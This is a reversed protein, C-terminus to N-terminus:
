RGLGIILITGLSFLALVSALGLGLAFPKIGTKRVAETDTGLGIASLAMLVAFKAIEDVLKVRKRGRDAGRTPSMRRCSGLAVGATRILTMILFGIVFWPVVKGFNFM